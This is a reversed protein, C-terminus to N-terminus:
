MRLAGKSAPACPRCIPRSTACAPARRPRRAEPRGGGARAGGTSQARGRGLHHPARWARARRARETSPRKWSTSFTESIGTWPRTSPHTAICTRRPPARPARADPTAAAAAKASQRGPKRRPPPKAHRRRPPPRAIAAKLEELADGLYNALKKVDPMARRCATIGFDLNGSYSQVTINCGIGHAPISVPYMSRAADGADHLASLEAGADNSIAVNAIPPLNDALHSRGYLSVLGTM